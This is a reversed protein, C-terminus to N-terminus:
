LSKQDYQKKNQFELAINDDTFLFENTNTLMDENEIKSQIILPEFRNQQILFDLISNYFLKEKQWLDLIGTTFFHYAIFSFLITFGVSLAIVFLPQHYYLLILTNIFFTLALATSGAPFMYIFSSYGREQTLYINYKAKYGEFPVYGMEKCRPCSIPKRKITFGAENDDVLIDNPLYVRNGQCLPCVKVITRDDLLFIDSSVYSIFRKQKDM